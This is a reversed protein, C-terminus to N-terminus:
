VARVVERVWLLVVTYLTASRALHSRSHGPGAAGTYARTACGRPWLAARSAAHVRDASASCSQLRLLEYCVPCELIDTLTKRCGASWPEAQQEEPASLARNDFACCCSCTKCKNNAVCKIFKHLKVHPTTRCRGAILQSHRLLTPGFASATGATYASNSSRRRAQNVVENSRSHSECM